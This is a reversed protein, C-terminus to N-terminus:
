WSVLIGTSSTGAYDILDYCTAIIRRQNGIHTASFAVFTGDYRRLKLTGATGTIEIMRPYKGKRVLTQDATLVSSPAYLEQWTASDTGLSIDSESM